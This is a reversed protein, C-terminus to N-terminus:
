VIHLLDPAVLSVLHPPQIVWHNNRHVLNTGSYAILCVTLHLIGWSLALNCTICLTSATAFFWMCSVGRQNFLGNTVSALLSSM